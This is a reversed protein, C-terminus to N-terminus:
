TPALLPHGEGKARRCRRQPTSSLCPTPAKVSPDLTAPVLLREGSPGSYTGAPRTSTTPMARDGSAAARHSRKHIRPQHACTSSIASAATMHRTACPASAVTAATRGPMLAASPYTTVKSTRPQRPVGEGTSRTPSALPTGSCLGRLIVPPGARVGDRRPRSPADLPLVAKPVERCLSWSFQDPPVRERVPGRWDEGDAGVARKDGSM